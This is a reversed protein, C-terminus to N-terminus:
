NTVVKVKEESGEEGEKEEEEENTLTPLITKEIKDDGM